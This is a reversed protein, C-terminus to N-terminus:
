ASGSGLVRSSRGHRRSGFGTGRGNCMWRFTVKIGMANIQDEFDIVRQVLWQGLGPRNDKIKKLATQADCRLEVETYGWGGAKSRIERLAIGLVYLEADFVEKNTGFHRRLTHWKDKHKYM